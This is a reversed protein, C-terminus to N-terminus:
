ENVFITLIGNQNIFFEQVNKNLVEALRADAAAAEEADYDYDEAKAHPDGMYSHFTGILSSNLSIFAQRTLVCSKGYYTKLLSNLKM